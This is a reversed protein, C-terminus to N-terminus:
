ETSTNEVCLMRQFEGMMNIMILQCPLTLPHLPHVVDVNTRLSHIIQTIVQEVQSKM